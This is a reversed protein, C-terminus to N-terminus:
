RKQRLRVALISIFLAAGLSAAALAVFVTRWPQVDLIAGVVGSSLGAGLNFTFDVLGATRSTEDRGVLVHLMTILLLSSTGYAVGGIVVLMVTSTALGGPLAVFIMFLAALVALLMALGVAERGALYNGVLWGLLVTGGIGALPLLTALIAAPGIGLQGVEVFYTPMWVALSFSYVRLLHGCADFALGTASQCAPKWANSNREHHGGYGGRNTYPGSSRAHGTYALALWRRGFLSAAGSGLFGGAMWVSGGAVWEPALDICQRRRLKLWIRWLNKHAPGAYALKGACAPHPGMRDISFLWEGDMACVAAGVHISRRIHVNSCCLSVHRAAGIPTPQPSGGSLWQDIARRRVGLFLRRRNIGVRGQFSEPQSSHGTAGGFLEVSGPLLGCLYDLCCGCCAAALTATYPRKCDGNDSSKEWRRGFGPSTKM